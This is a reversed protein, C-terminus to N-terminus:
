ESFPLLLFLLSPTPNFCEEKSTLDSHRWRLPAKLPIFFPILPSLIWITEANWSENTGKRKKERERERERDKEEKCKKRVELKVGRNRAPREKESASVSGM